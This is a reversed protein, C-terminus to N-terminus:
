SRSYIKEIVDGIQEVLEQRNPKLQSTVDKPKKLLSKDLTEWHKIQAPEELKSNIQKIAGEVTEQNLKQKDVWLVASCYPKNDGVLVAEEVSEISKLAADILDTPIKKGYSTILINKKRGLIKLHGEATVEGIDGTAFWGDRFPSEERNLYGRMVQPGKILIEGDQDTCIKTDRLPPGVTEVNNSGLKNMAVLPAESLGYANHIEIGLRQFNKLLEESMCAAGVIFQDCKYLGAKRLVSFKLVKKLWRKKVSNEAHYYQQGFRSTLLKEWIKEYLRPIAFFVSPKAKQLAQPLEHFDELFYVEM